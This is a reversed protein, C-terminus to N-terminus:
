LKRLKIFNLITLYIGKKFTLYKHGLFSYISVTIVAFIHAITEYKTLNLIFIRQLITIYLMSFVTTLFLGLLAIIFFTRFQQYSKRESKNFNFNKNLIFNVLMGLLYAIMIAIYFNIEYFENMIYRSVINIVTAIGAFFNYLIFQKTINKYKM